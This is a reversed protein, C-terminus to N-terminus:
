SRLHFALYLEFSIEFHFIEFMILSKVESCASRVLLNQNNDGIKIHLVTFQANKNWVKSTPSGPTGLVPGEQVCGIRIIKGSLLNKLMM